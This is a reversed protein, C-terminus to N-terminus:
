VQCKMMHSSFYETLNKEDATRLRTKTFLGHDAKSALLDLKSILGM